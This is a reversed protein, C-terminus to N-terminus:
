DGRRPGFRRSVAKVVLPYSVPALRQMAEIITADTGILIRPSRQEMGDAITKAAKEPTTRAIQEFDSVARTKDTMGEVNGYFRSSRVINTKIGGPHVCSATVGTGELEQRLAETFGRVAFKTANYAAQGPVAIFGFVSSVNVIWGDGREVLHPLFAKTGHVVGWFNIGVIWEFDEFSIEAVTTSVTVGANNVIADVKGHADISREAFAYVAARDAVDVKSSTVKRGLRAADEVTRALGDDDVDCLALDSGRAALELALARGIGSAAGTVACVRGSFGDM